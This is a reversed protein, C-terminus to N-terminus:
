CRPARLLAIRKALSARPIAVSPIWSPDKGIAEARSTQTRPGAPRVRASGPRPACFDSVQSRKYRKFAQTTNDKAKAKGPCVRLRHVCFLFFSYVRHVDQSFKTFNRRYKMLIDDTKNIVRSFEFFDALEAVSM